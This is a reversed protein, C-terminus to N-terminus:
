KEAMKRAIEDLPLDDRVIDLDSLDDLKGSDQGLVSDAMLLLLAVLQIQALIVRHKPARQIGQTRPGGRVRNKKWWRIRQNEIM